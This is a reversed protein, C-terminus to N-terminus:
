RGPVLFIASSSAPAAPLLLFQMGTPPSMSCSLDPHLRRVIWLARILGPVSSPDVVGVVNVEPECLKILPEYNVDVVIHIRTLPFQHRLARLAPLITVLDGLRTLEFIAISKIVGPTFSSKQARRAKWRLWAILARLM